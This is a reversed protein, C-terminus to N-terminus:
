KGGVNNELKRKLEQNEYFLDDYSKPELDQYIRIKDDHNIFTNTVTIEKELIVDLKVWLAMLILMLGAQKSSFDKSFCFILGGLVFSIGAFIRNGNNWLYKLLKM